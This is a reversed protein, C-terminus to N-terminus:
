YTVTQLDFLVGVSGYFFDGPRQKTWNDVVLKGDIYLKARGAVALGLNYVATKDMTLKGNLKLM